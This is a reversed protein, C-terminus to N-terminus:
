KEDPKDELMAAMAEGINQIADPIDEGQTHCGPIEPCYVYYGGDDQLELIITYFLLSRDKDAM